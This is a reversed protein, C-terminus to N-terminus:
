KLNGVKANVFNLYQRDVKNGADTFWYTPRFGKHMISRGSQFTIKHAPAGTRDLAVPYPFRHKDKSKGGATVIYSAQGLKRLQILRRMNGTKSYKSHRQEANMRAFERMRTAMTQSTSEAISRLDTRLRGFHTNDTINLSVNIM